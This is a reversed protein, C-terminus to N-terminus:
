VGGDHQRQRRLHTSVAEVLAPEAEQTAWDARITGEKMAVLLETVDRLRKATVEAGEGKSLLAPLDLRGVLTAGDQAIKAMFGTKLMMLTQRDGDPKVECELRLGIARMASQVRLRSAQRTAKDTDDLAGRLSRVRELHEEPSVAGRAAALQAAVKERQTRLGKLARTNDNIQEVVQANQDTQIALGILRNGKEQRDAIEKEVEALAISLAGTEDVRAFLKDDLALHLVQDLVAGELPGYAFMQRQSCAGRRAARNCQLYRQGSLSSVSKLHMRGSCQRCFAISTFLNAVAATHRGGTRPGIKRQEVAARARAVLDADVIRPFYGRIVEDFKTRSATSTNAFGPVYDGEVSPQALMLRISSIEWTGPKGDKRPPGWAPVGRENFSKAILRAGAGAAALSYAERVIEVRNEIEVWFMRDESLQLWGPGKASMKAGGAAARRMNKGIAELVRESKQTSEKNALEARMIIEIVEIQNAELSANSYIRGGDVTAIMLGLEALDEMWRLTKRPAQRSLRDLREVVLVAPLSIEGSRVREAFKGLNGTTLHVGTWASTGLDEIQEAIPWGQRECFATIGDVQRRISDGKEQKLSSFRIYSYAQM